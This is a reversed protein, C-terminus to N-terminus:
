AQEMQWVNLQSDGDVRMHLPVLCSPIDDAGVSWGKESEAIVLAGPALWDGAVLAALTPAVFGKRYPPDLLALDRPLINEPRPGLKQCGKMLFVAADAYGCVKVNERAVGLVRGDYDVFACHAAGRSLAEIGLAGSGCFGDFVCAGELAFGAGVAWPSHMLMNFLQQRMKDTTPRVVGMAPVKLTRGRAEGGTVRM